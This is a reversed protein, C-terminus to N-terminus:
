LCHKMCSDLVSLSSIGLMLYPGLKAGALRRGSVVKRSCEAGDTGSEDLVHGLYKFELGHDLHIEDVPVGCELGEEKKLVMM